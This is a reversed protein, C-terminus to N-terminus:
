PRCRDGLSGGIREPPLVYEITTTVRVNISSNWAYNTSDGKDYDYGWSM